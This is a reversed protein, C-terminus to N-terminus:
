PLEAPWRVGALERQARARQAATPRRRGFFILADVHYRRHFRGRIRYGTRTDGRAGAFRFATAQSLRPHVPLVADLARHCRDLYQLIEIVVGDPLLREATEYPVDPAFPVTAASSVEWRVCAGRHERDVRAHWGPAAPFRAAALANTFPGPRARLSELIALAPRRRAQPGYVYAQFSRGHDSFRVATGTGFCAFPGPFTAKAPLQPYDHRSGITEYMFVFGGERGRQRLATTPTCNGDPRRQHLRFTGFAVQEQASIAAILQQPYVRWADSLVLHLGRARDDYPFATDPDISVPRRPSVRLSDLIALGQRVRAPPARRGVAVLVHFGRGGDRFELLHMAIARNRACVFADSGNDAPPLAFRRPRAPFSRDSGYREQVTLLVDAPRMAALAATPV